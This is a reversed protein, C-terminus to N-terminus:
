AVIYRWAVNWPSAGGSLRFKPSGASVSTDVTGMSWGTVAGVSPFLSNDNMVINGASGSSASGTARSIKAATVASAGLKANTVALAAIKGTTVNLDTIAATDITPAGSAGSALADFNDDVQTMKAATLLSGFSFTLNTWAM